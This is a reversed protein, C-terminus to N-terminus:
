NEKNNNFNGIINLNIERIEFGPIEKKKLYEHIIEALEEDHFDVLKKTDECVLHFHEGTEIDYHKINDGSHLCKVLGCKELWDLTNYVTALSITPFDEKVYKYLEDPTPHTRHGYLAELVVIRQHTAKLGSDNLKKVIKDYNKM